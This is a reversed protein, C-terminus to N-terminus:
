IFEKRKLLKAKFKRIVNEDKKIIKKNEGTWCIKLGRDIVSINVAVIWILVRTINM